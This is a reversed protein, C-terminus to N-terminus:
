DVVIRHVSGRSAEALGITIPSKPYHATCGDRAERRSKFKLPAIDPGTVVFPGKVYRVTLSTM